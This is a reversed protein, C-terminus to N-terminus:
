FTSGNIMKFDKNESKYNFELSVFKLDHYFLSFYATNMMFLVYGTFKYMSLSWVPVVSALFMGSSDIPMILAMSLILIAKVAIWPTNQSMIERKRCIYTLFLTSCAHFLSFMNFVLILISEEIKVVMIGMDSKESPTLAYLLLSAQAVLGFALSIWVYCQSMSFGMIRKMLVYHVSLVTGIGLGAALFVGTQVIYPRITPLKYLFPICTDSKDLICHMGISICFTAAILAAYIIPFNKTPSTKYAKIKKTSLLNIREEDIDEM